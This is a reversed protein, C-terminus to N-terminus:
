TGRDVGDKEGEKIVNGTWHQCEYRVNTTNDPSHRRKDDKIHELQEPQLLGEAKVEHFM